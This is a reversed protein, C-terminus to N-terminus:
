DVFEIEIEIGRRSLETQLWQASLENAVYVSKRPGNATTQTLEVGNKEGNGDKDVDFVGSYRLLEFARANSGSYNDCYFAIDSYHRDVDDSDLYDDLESADIGYQDLIDDIGKDDLQLGAVDEIFTRWTMNGFDDCDSSLTQDLTAENGYERNVFLIPKSSGENDEEMVGIEM